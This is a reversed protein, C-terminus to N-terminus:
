NSLQNVQITMGQKKALATNQTVRKFLTPARPCLCHAAVAVLQQLPMSFVHGAICLPSHM